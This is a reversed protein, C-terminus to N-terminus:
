LMDQPVMTRFIELPRHGGDRGFLSRRVSTGACKPIHVFMCKERASQEQILQFRRPHRIQFWVRTLQRRFPSPSAPLMNEAIVILQVPRVSLPPPLVLSGEHGLKEMSIM